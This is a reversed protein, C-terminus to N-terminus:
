NRGLNVGWILMLIGVLAVGGGGVYYCLEFSGFFATLGLEAEWRAGSKTKGGGGGFTKDVSIEGKGSPRVPV